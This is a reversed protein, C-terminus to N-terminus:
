VCVIFLCIMAQERNNKDFQGGEGLFSPLFFCVFMCVYMCFIQTLAFQKFMCQVGYSMCSDTYHCFHADCNRVTNNTATNFSSALYHMNHTCTYSKM